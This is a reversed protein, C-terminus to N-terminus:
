CPSLNMLVISWGWSAWIGIECFVGPRFLPALYLREANSGPLYVRRTRTLSMKEPFVRSFLTSKLTLYNKAALAARLKKSVGARAKREFKQIFNL